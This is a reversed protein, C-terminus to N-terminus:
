KNDVLYKRKLITWVDDCSLSKNPPNLWKKEFESRSIHQPTNTILIVEGYEILQLKNHLYKTFRHLVWDKEILQIVEQKTLSVPHSQKMMHTIILCDNDVGFHLPHDPFVNMNAWEHNPDNYRLFSTSASKIVNRSGQDLFITSLQGEINKTTIYHRIPHSKGSVGFWVKHSSTSDTLELSHKYKYLDGNAADYFLRRDSVNESYILDNDVEDNDDDFVGEILEEMSLKTPEEDIKEKKLNRTSNEFPGEIELEMRSLKSPKEDIKKKPNIRSIELVREIELEKRSLKSPKENTSSEVIKKKLSMNQLQDFRHTHTFGPYSVSQTTVHAVWGNKYQYRGVERGMNGGGGVGLSWAEM